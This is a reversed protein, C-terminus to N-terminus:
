KTAIEFVLLNKGKNFNMTTGDKTFLWDQSEHWAMFQVDMGAPVRPITFSGDKKTIAYYPHDFVFIQASMWPHVDCQLSLPLLQPKVDVDINKGSALVANIGANARPNGMLRAGQAVASSNKIVLKQGTKGNNAGDSWEPYVAAVHPVYVCFPADIVVANNRVKDAPDIPLMKNAPRKLFVAVNAVGRTKPDIRWTPDLLTDAPAKLIAPADPHRHIKDVLSPVKPLEGKFIVRGELSGYVQQENQALSPSACLVLLSLLGGARVLSSMMANM